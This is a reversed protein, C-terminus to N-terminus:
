NLSGNVVIVANFDMVEKVDLSLNGWKRLIVSRGGLGGNVCVCM